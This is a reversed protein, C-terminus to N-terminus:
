PIIKWLPEPTGRPSARIRGPLRLVGLKRLTNPVQCVGLEQSEPDHAGKLDGRRDVEDLIPCVPDFPILRGPNGHMAQRVLPTKPLPDGVGSVRVAPVMRPDKILIFSM